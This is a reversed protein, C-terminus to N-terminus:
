MTMSISNFGQNMEDLIEQLEYNNSESAEQIQKKQMSRIYETDLFKIPIIPADYGYIKHINIKGICQVNDIKRLNITADIDLHHM